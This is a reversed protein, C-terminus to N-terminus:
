AKEVAEKFKERLLNRVIRDNELGPILVEEEMKMDESQLIRSKQDALLKSVFSKVHLFPPKEEGYALWGRELEMEWDETDENIPQSQCDCIECSTDIGMSISLHCICKCETTNTNMNM